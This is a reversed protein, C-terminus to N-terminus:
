TTLHEHPCDPPLRASIAQTLPMWEVSDPRDSRHPPTSASPAGALQIATDLPELAGEGIEFLCTRAASSCFFLAEARPARACVAALCRERLRVFRLEM